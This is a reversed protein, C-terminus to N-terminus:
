LTIKLRSQYLGDKYQTFFTHKDKYLLELRRKLNKLGIGNCVNVNESTNRILCDLETENYAIFIDIMNQKDSYQSVHKFANEVLPLLLFPAILPNGTKKVVFGIKYDTDFRSKSIEVYNGLFEMEQNIDVKDSKCEYLQYRFMRSFQLVSNKAAEKDLDIQFYITNLINFFSHPNVQLKLFDLETKIKEERLTSLDSQSTYFDDVLKFICSVSSLFFALLYSGALDNLNFSFSFGEQHPRYPTLLLYNCFVM